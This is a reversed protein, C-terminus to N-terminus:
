QLGGIVTGALPGAATGTVPGAPSEGAVILNQPTVCRTLDVDAMKIYEDIVDALESAANSFESAFDNAIKDAAEMAEPSRLNDAFTSIIANYAAKGLIPRLKAELLYKQLM